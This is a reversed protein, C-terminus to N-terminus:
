NMERRQSDLYDAYDAAWMIDAKILGDDILNGIIYIDDWTGPYGGVITGEWTKLSKKNLKLRSEPVRPGYDFSVFLQTVIDVAVRVRSDDIDNELKGFTTFEYNIKRKM